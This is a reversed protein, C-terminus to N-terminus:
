NKVEEFSMKKGNRIVFVDSTNESLNIYRNVIVDCYREDLEITRCIRNNKQCAILTTGSGAFSDFVIDGRKSSNRIQYAILEVPKM